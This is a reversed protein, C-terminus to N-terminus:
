KVWSLDVNNRNLKLWLTEANFLQTGTEITDNGLAAIALTNQIKDM